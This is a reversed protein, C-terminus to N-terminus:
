TVEQHRLSDEIKASLKSWQEEQRLAEKHHITGQLLLCIACLTTSVLTFVCWLSPFLASGCGLSLVLFLFLTADSGRVSISTSM